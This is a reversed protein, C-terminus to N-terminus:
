IIHSSCLNIVKIINDFNREIDTAIINLVVKYHSLDKQERRNIVETKYVEHDHLENETVIILNSYDYNVFKDKTLNANIEKMIQFAQNFKPHKYHYTTKVTDIYDYIPTCTLFKLSPQNPNGRPTVVIKNAYEELKSMETFNTPLTFTIHFVENHEQFNPKFKTSDHVVPGCWGRPGMAIEQDSLHYYVDILDVSFTFKDNDIANVIKMMQETVWLSCGYGNHQTVQIRDM